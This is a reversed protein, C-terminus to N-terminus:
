KGVVRGEDKSYQPDASLHSTLAPSTARIVTGTFRDTARLHQDNILTVAQGVQTLSPKLSFQFQAERSASADLDGVKWSVERTQPNFSFASPSTTLDLWTVYIPVEMTVLGGTVANTGNQIKLHMTYTTTDEARSPIPGTNTFAGTSYLIESSLQTVSEVKITRSASGTVRQSAQNDSPTRNGEVNVKFSIQPTRPTDAQSLPTVGFTVTNTRGPEISRLAEMSQADWTLLNSSSDYFGTSSQVQSENLGNGSLDVTIKGDLLTTQLTNKFKVTIIATSGPTVVPSDGSDGNVDVGVALFPDEIAVEQRATSFVSSLALQDRDNPVGVSFKFVKSENQKGLLQGKISIIRKEQPKLGSISWTDQGSVTSPKSETYDFGEPYEAKLLINTIASPSNSVVSVKFEVNQGSSIKNVSEVSLVVPSSSIKFKLPSAEKFFTANSGRVRYEVSVLITKEENEEGFVRARLPVNVVEGPNIPSLPRRERFMEKGQEDASQTGFPYEVVLTASDIPVANKNSITVQLPFEQGGGTIFPGTADITINEGSIRNKGFFLFSGSLLLAVVFFVLGGVILKARYSRVTKKMALLPEHHADPPVLTATSQPALDGEKEWTHAVAQPTDVLERRERSAPPQGRSYLRERLERLREEHEGKKEVM